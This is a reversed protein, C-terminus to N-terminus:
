KYFNWITGMEGQELYKCKQLCLMHTKWERNWWIFHNFENEKETEMETMTKNSAGGEMEEM